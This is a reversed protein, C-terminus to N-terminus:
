PVFIIKRTEILEIKEIYKIPLLMFRYPRVKFLRVCEKGGNQAIVAEARVYVDSPLVLIYMDNERVYKIREVFERGIVTGRLNYDVNNSDMELENNLYIKFTRTSEETRKLEAAVTSEM